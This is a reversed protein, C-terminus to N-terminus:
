SEREVRVAAEHIGIEQLLEFNLAAVEQPDRAQLQAVGREGLIDHLVRQGGREGACSPKVPLDLTLVQSVPIRLCLITSAMRRLCRSGTAALESSSSASRSSKSPSNLSVPAQCAGGASQPSGSCDSLRRCNKSMMSNQRSFSGGLVARTNMIRSTM